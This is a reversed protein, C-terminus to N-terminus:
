NPMDNEMQDPKKHFPTEINRSLLVLLDRVFSAHAKSKSGIGLLTAPLVPVPSENIIASVGINPAAAKVKEMNTREAAIFLCDYNKQICKKRLAELM